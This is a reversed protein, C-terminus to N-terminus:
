LAAPLRDGRRRPEGTSTAAPAQVKAPGGSDLLRRRKVAAQVERERDAVVTGDLIEYLMAKGEEYSDVVGYGVYIGFNTM